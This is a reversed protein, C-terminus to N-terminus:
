KDEAVKKMDAETELLAELNKIELKQAQIKKDRRAVHAVSKKLM